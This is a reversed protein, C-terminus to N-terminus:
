HRLDPIQSPGVFPGQLWQLITWPIASARWGPCTGHRARPCRWGLPSNNKAQNSSIWHQHLFLGLPLWSVWSPPSWSNWAICLQPAFPVFSGPSELAPTISGSYASPAQGTYPVPFAAAPIHHGTRTGRNPMYVLLMELLHLLSSSGLQDGRNAVLLEGSPKRGVRAFNTEALNDAMEVLEDNEFEREEAVYDPVTKKEWLVYLKRKLHCNM